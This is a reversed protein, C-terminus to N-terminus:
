HALGKDANDEPSALLRQEASILEEKEDQGLSDWQNYEDAASNWRDEALQAVDVSEPKRWAARAYLVYPWAYWFGVWALFGYRGSESATTNLAVKLAAMGIVAWLVAWLSYANGIAFVLWGAICAIQHEVQDFVPKREM